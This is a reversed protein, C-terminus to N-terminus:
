CPSKNLLCGPIMERWDLGEQHNLMEAAQGASIRANSEERCLRSEVRPDGESKAAM